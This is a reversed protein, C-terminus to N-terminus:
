QQFIAEQNKKHKFRVELSELVLDFPQEQISVPQSQTVHNSASTKIISQITDCRNLLVSDIVARFDAHRGTVKSHLISSHPRDSCSDSCNSENVSPSLELDWTQM